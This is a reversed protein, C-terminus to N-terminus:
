SPKATSEINSHGIAFFVTVNEVENFNTLDPNGGTCTKAEQESKDLQPTLLEGESSAASLQRIQGAYRLMFSHNFGAEILANEDAQFIPFYVGNRNGYIELM